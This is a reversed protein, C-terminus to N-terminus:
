GGSLGPQDYFVDEKRYHNIQSSSMYSPTLGLEEKLNTHSAQSLYPKETKPDYVTFAHKSTFIKEGKYLCDIALSFSDMHLFFCLCKSHLSPSFGLGTTQAKPDLWAQLRSKSM